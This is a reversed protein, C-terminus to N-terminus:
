LPAGHAHQRGAHSRRARRQHVEATLQAPASAGTTIPTSACCTPNLAAKPKRSKPAPRAFTAANHDGCVCASKAARSAGASTFAPHGAVQWRSRLDLKRLVQHVHVGVTSVAIGLAGAIQRDTLSHAV